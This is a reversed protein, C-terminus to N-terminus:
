VATAMAKQRREDDAGGEAQRYCYQAVMGLVMSLYRCVLAITEHVPGKAEIDPRVSSNYVFLAVGALVASLVFRWPRRGVDLLALGASVGVVSVILIMSVTSS